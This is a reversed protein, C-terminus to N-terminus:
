RRKITECDSAVHDSRDAIVIDKGTGCTVTDTAGDRAFITDNGAGGHLVDHGLGGYLIDNGGLGYISDNGAGGRLVDPCNTGVIRNPRADGLRRVGHCVFPPPPPPPSTAQVTITIAAHNDAPNAERDASAVADLTQAGSGSVRVAFLVKTTAGNPVYDLYCDIKQTGTCGSGRDYAPPGLLTMTAPLTIVLHTQLSGAGGSNTVTAVLDSEDGPALTTKSASLAVKLDPVSTGGGGGGGGSSIANFTATVGRDALM